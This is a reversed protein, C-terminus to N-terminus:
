FEEAVVEPQANPHDAEGRCVVQYTCFMDKTPALAISTCISVWQGGNIRYGLEFADGHLCGLRSVSIADSYDQVPNDLSPLNAPVVVKGLGAKTRGAGDREFETVM